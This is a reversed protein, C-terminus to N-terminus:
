VPCRYNKKQTVMYCDANVSCYNCVPLIEICPVKVFSLHYPNFKGSEKIGQINCTSIINFTAFQIELDSHFINLSDSHNSIM